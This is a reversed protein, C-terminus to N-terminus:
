QPNKLLDNLLNGVPDDQGRGPAGSTGTEPEPEPPRKKHGLFGGILGKIDKKKLKKLAKNLKKSKKGLAQIGKVIADPNKLLSKVDPVIEPASWPGKIKVPISIGKLDDKGGQGELSAVLKPAAKISLRKRPLDVKGGATLRVLPGVMKLEAITAIGRKITFTSTLLSFDTSQSSKRNWGSLSGKKLGRIMQAINIGEIAGNEFTVRGKGALSEVIGAPSKGRGTVSIAMAGTGSVWNFGAADKLFPLVAVSSSNFAASIVPSHKGGKVTMKGTAKGDYLRLDSLDAKLVGDLLTVALASNGIKIKEYLLQSTSLRIDADVADLGSLDFATTSWGGNGSTGTSKKDAAPKQGAKTGAARLYTNLDLKDAALTAEIYPRKGGLRLRAGGEAKM